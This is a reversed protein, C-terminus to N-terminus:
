VIDYKRSYVISGVGILLLIIYWMFMLYVNIGAPTDFRTLPQPDFVNMWYWLSIPNSFLNLVIASLVSFITAGLYVVVKNRIIHSIGFTAFSFAGCLLSILLIYLLSNLHPYNSWLYPFTFVSRILRESNINFIYTNTTIFVDKAGLILWTNLYNLTLFISIIAFGSFFTTVFKSIYYKKPSTRSFLQSVFQSEELYITSNGLVSFLSVVIMFAFMVTRTNPNYFWFSDYSNGVSQVDVNFYLIFPLMFAGLVSFLITVKFQTSHFLVRFDFKINKLM